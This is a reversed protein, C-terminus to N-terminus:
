DDVRLFDGNLSFDLDIGNSLSIEYKSHDRDIEVIRTGSYNKEVYKRISEPVVNKPVGTDSYRCQVEEWEGKNDFEIKAGSRLTVKYETKFTGGKHASVVPDKGFNAKLFTQASLPLQKAEIRKDAQANFAVLAGIVLICLSIIRKM